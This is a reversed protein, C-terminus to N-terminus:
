YSCTPSFSAPREENLIGPNRQSKNNTGEREMTSGANSFPTWFSFELTKTTTVCKQTDIKSLSDCLVRNSHSWSMKCKQSIEHIQWALSLAQFRKAKGHVDCERTHDGQEATKTPDKRRFSSFFPYDVFLLLESLVSKVNPNQLATITTNNIQKKNGFSFTFLISM